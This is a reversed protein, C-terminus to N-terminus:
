QSSFETIGHIDIIGDLSVLFSPASTCAYMIIFWTFFGWHGSGKGDDDRDGGKSDECAYPTRWEMSLVKEDGVVEFSQYKLQGGHGDDTIESTASHDEEEDDDDRAKLVESKRHRETDSREEAKHQCLFTIVAKHDIGNKEPYKQGHLQIRFGEKERDDPSPSTKLRTIETDLEGGSHLTYAGAIPIAALFSTTNEFTNILREIGCVTMIGDALWPVHERLCAILTVPASRWTGRSGNPCDEEKPVGKAKELPHCIDMTFTTNTMTPNPAKDVSTMVSKPGDLPSIDFGKGKDRIDSCDFNVSSALSPLFVLLTSTQLIPTRKRLRM